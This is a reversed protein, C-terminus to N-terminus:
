ASPQEANNNASGNDVTAETQVSSDSNVEQTSSIDLSVGSSTMEKLLAKFSDVCLQLAAVIKSNNTAPTDRIYEVASDLDELCPLGAARNDNIYNLLRHEAERYIGIEASIDEVDEGGFDSSDWEEKLTLASSIEEVDTSYYSDLENYLYSADNYHELDSACDVSNEEAWEILWKYQNDAEENRISDTYSEVDGLRRDMDEKFNAVVQNIVELESIINNASDEIDSM